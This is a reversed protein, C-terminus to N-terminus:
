GDIGFTGDDDGCAYPCEYSDHVLVEDYTEEFVEVVTMDVEISDSGDSTDYVVVDATTTNGQDDVEDVHFEEIPDAPNPAAQTAETPDLIYGDDIPDNSSLAPDTGTSPDTYSEGSYTDTYNM